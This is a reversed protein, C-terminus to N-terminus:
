VQTRAARHERVILLLETVIDALAMPEAEEDDEDQFLERPVGTADAIADRLDGRPVHVGQEIKVLHSRNSRGLREILRDHSLGANKRAWRIRAGIPLTRIHSPIVARASV